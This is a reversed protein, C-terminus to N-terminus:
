DHSVWRSLYREEVVDFLYYESLMIIIIVLLTWAFILDTRFQHLADFLRFGMGSQAALLEGVLALKFAVSFNLKTSSFLRPVLMPLLVKRFIRIESDTLSRAMEILPQDTVKLEEWLDVLYIPLVTIFVVFIVSNTGLGFWVIALLAFSIAPLARSAPYIVKLFFYRVSAVYTAAIVLVLSVVGTLVTGVVTRYLTIFIHQASSWSDLISYIAEFTAVPGPFVTTGTTISLAQWLALVLLYSASVKLLDDGFRIGTAIDPWERFSM